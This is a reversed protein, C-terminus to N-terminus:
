HDEQVKQVIKEICNELGDIFTDVEIDYVEEKHVFELQEQAQGIRRDGREKERRKLEEVPCHVGILLLPYGSLCKVCDARTFQDYIVHDVILNVGKDSFMAITRHFFYETEVPILRNNERDEMHDIVIDFDDISYHFYDPLKKLLEKALTTKGSSSVGNLLIINGKKM